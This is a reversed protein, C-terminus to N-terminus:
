VEGGLDHIIAALVSKVKPGSVLQHDGIAGHLAVLDCLWSQPTVDIITDLRQQGNRDETTPADGIVADHHSAMLVPPPVLPDLDYDRALGTLVPALKVRTTFATRRGFTVAQVTNGALGAMRGVEVFTHHGHIISKAWEAGRPTALMSAVQCDYDTPAADIM